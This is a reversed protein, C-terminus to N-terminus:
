FLRTPVTISISSPLFKNLVLHNKSSIKYNWGCHELIWALTSVPIAQTELERLNLPAAGAFQLSSEKNRPINYELYQNRIIALM